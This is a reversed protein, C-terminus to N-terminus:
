SFGEEKKILEGNIYEALVEEKLSNGADDMEGRQVEIRYVGFTKLFEVYTATVAKQYPEGLPEVDSFWVRKPYRAKTEFEDESKPFHEVVNVSHVIGANRELHHLIQRIVFYRKNEDM